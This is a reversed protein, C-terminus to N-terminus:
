PNRRQYSRGVISGTQTDVMLMGWHMVAPTDVVTFAHGVRTSTSVDKSLAANDHTRDTNDHMTM